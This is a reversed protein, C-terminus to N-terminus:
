TQEYKKNTLFLDVLRVGLFNHISKTFSLLNTLLIIISKPSTVFLGGFKFHDNQEQRGLHFYYAFPMCIEKDM